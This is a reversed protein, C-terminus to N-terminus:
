IYFPLVDGRDLKLAKLLTLLAKGKHWDIDPQLEFIKKGYAKRLESHKTAVEDVVKEITEIWKPEVLRYHIAIAFKKREVIVKDISQLKESLEKEAEDLVPLFEEGIQNQIELDEPSSIDFGHSGAYLISDIKVMKQVDQLDRGSIIGVTCYQSLTIVASRMDEHM